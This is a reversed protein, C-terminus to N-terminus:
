DIKYESNLYHPKVDIELLGNKESAEKTLVEIASVSDIKEHEILKDTDNWKVLPNHVDDFVKDTTAVFENTAITLKMDEFGDYWIGNHYILKDDKVLANVEETYYCDIGVISAVFARNKDKVAYNLLELLEKYTIEYKYIVNDFPFNTYINGLTVDRQKSGKQISFDLRVGANNVFAVDSNVSRLYISSVWNGGTTSFEGSGDIYQKVRAETTIYGVKKELVNQMSNIVTETLKVIENDLENKNKDKNLTKNKNETVSINKVNDIEKFKIKEKGKEFVFEFYGYANGYSGPQVYIMNNETKGSTSIHTHGGLVIDIVTDSGLTQAIEEADAHCLLITVDALGEKELKKAINNPIEINENISYGLDKFVNKMISSSYNELYGIVGVKVEIEEGKENRAKKTLIVYDKIWDVKKSNNYLNSAIVPVDNKLKYGEINSDQMTGDNDITNEIEWDFEHNGITVADYDMLKFAASLSEGELLNSMINGQYIDGGDLLLAYDKNYNEYGRVDKVKDSIYALLYEYDDKNKNAIYGHVDSTEFVPLRYLDSEYNVNEKKFIFTSCLLSIFIILFIIDVIIKKYNKM